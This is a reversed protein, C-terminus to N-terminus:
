DKFEERQANESGRTCYYLRTLGMREVVPCIGCTCGVEKTIIDSIGKICFLLKEAGTGQYTPCDNCICMTELRDVQKERGEESMGQLKDMMDEWKDL